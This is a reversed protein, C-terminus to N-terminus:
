AKRLAWTSPRKSQPTTIITMASSGGENQLLVMLCVLCSATLSRICLSSFTFWPSDGEEKFWPSSFLPTLFPFCCSEQLSLMGAAEPSDEPADENIRHPADFM